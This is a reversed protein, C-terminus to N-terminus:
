LWFIVPESGPRPVEEYSFFITVQRSRQSSCTWPSSTSSCSGAHLTWCTWRTRSSPSPASASASWSGAIRTPGSWSGAACTELLVTLLLESNVLLLCVPGNLMRLWHSGDWARFFEIELIPYWDRGSDQSLEIGILKFYQPKLYRAWAQKLLIWLVSIIKILSSM